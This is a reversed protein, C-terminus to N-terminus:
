CRGRRSSTGAKVADLLRPDGAAAHVRPQLWLWSSVAFMFVKM